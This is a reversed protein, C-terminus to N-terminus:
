FLIYLEPSDEAFSAGKTVVENQLEIEPLAMLDM